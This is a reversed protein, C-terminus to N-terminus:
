EHTLEAFRKRRRQWKEIYSLKRKGKIDINDEDYNEASLELEIRSLEGRFFEIFDKKEKLEKLSLDRKRIEIKLEELRDQYIRKLQRREDFILSEFEDMARVMDMNRMPEYSDPLGSKMKALRERQDDPFDKIPSFRYDKYLIIFRLEQEKLNKLDPVLAIADPHLEVEGNINMHWIYAM